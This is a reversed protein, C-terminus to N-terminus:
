KDDKAKMQQELRNAAEMCQRAMETAAQAEDTYHMAATVLERHALKIPQQFDCKYILRSAVDTREM